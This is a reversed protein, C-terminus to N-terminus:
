IRLIPVYLVQDVGNKLVEIPRDFLDHFFLKDVIEFYLFKGSKTSLANRSKFSLKLPEIATGWSFPEQLFPQVKRGVKHEVGVEADLLYTIFRSKFTIRMKDPAEFIVKAIGWVLPPKGPRASRSSM